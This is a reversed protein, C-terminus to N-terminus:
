GACMASLAVLLFFLCCVAFCDASTDFWMSRASCLAYDGSVACIFSNLGGGGGGGEGDQRAERPARAACATLISLRPPAQLLVCAFTLIARADYARRTYTVGPDRITSKVFHYNYFERVPYLNKTSNHKANQTGM